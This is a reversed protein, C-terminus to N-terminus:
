IVHNQGGNKLSKYDLYIDLLNDIHIEFQDAIANLDTTKEFAKFLMINRHIAISQQVMSKDIILEKDYNCHNYYVNKLTQNLISNVARVGLNQDVAKESIFRLAYESFRINIGLAKCKKVHKSLDSDEAKTLIDYVDNASLKNMPCIFSLRGALEPIIGYRQIDDTTCYNLLNDTDILKSNGDFEKLLRTLIISDLEKFAGSFVLLINNTSLHINKAFQESTSPFVIKENFDFFKLLEFQTSSKWEDDKERNYRALKDFEDFHVIGNETKHLDSGGIIHLETLAKPISYGVIGTPVLDACGIRIAPVDCIDRAKNVLLTKGTGTDGIFLSSIKPFDNECQLRQKHDYVMLSMVKVADQQGIVFRLLYDEIKVPNDMEIFKLKRLKNVLTNAFQVSLENLADKIEEEEPLDFTNKWDLLKKDLIIEFDELKIKKNGPDDLDPDDDEPNRLNITVSRLESSIHDILKDKVKSINPNNLIEVVEGASISPSLFLIKALTKQNEITLDCDAPFCIGFFTSNDKMIM